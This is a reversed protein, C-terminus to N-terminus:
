LGRRRERSITQHALVGTKVPSGRSGPSRRAAATLPSL